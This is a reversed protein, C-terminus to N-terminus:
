YRTRRSEPEFREKLAKRTKDPGPLRLLAKQSRGTLRVRLWQLKQTDDWGNVASVNEFHFWWDSWSGTGDFPEPLVLPRAATSGLRGCEGAVPPPDTMGGSGGVAGGGCGPDTETM